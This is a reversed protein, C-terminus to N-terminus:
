KCGACSSASCGSCGAGSSSGSESVTSSKGLGFQSLLKETKDSGCKDCVAKTNSGFVIKEFCAGCSGCRYEYLPM